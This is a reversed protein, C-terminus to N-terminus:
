SIQARQAQYTDATVSIRIHKGFTFITLYLHRSHWVFLYRSGRLLLVCAVVLPPWLGHVSRNAGSCPSLDWNKFQPAPHGSCHSLNTSEEPYVNSTRSPRISCTATNKRNWCLPTRLVSYSYVSKTKWMKAPISFENLIEAVGAQAVM